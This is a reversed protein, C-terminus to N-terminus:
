SYAKLATQSFCDGKVAQSREINQVTPLILFIYFMSPFDPGFNRGPIRFIKSVKGNDLLHEARSKLM